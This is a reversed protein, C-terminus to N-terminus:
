ESRIDEVTFQLVSRINELRLEVQFGIKGASFLITDPGTAAADFVTTHSKKMGLPSCGGHVYGVTELLDKSKLLEVSKEGVSAAAKKLDLGGTVPVLFVHLRKSKGITVITKFVASPDEGAALAIELGTMSGDAPYSHVKYEIKAQDLIRMVNTKEDM